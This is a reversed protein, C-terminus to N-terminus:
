CDGGSDNAAWQRLFDEHGATRRRDRRIGHPRRRARALAADVGGEGDLLEDDGVHEGAAVHEGLRGGAGALREGEADREDVADRGVGAARRREDEGGRALEGALDDVLQARQRAGAVEADGGDVAADAELLLGAVRLARVDEDGGGAPELVQECRRAKVSSWTWCARARRPRGCARCPSGGPRRGADDGLARALALRQEERGREVALGAADGLGVRAVGHAVLVRRRLLARGVDLVAEHGDLAVVPQSASTPSSSSSRSSASTKTRVLRPASRSTLRRARSPTAPRRWARRCTAPGARARARRTRPAAADVRQDRGVDGGAADVDVADRVDDVEVRRVVALAVHVADAAGAAGARVPTPM